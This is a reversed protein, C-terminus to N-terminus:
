KKFHNMEITREALFYEEEIRNSAVIVTRNASYTELTNKYWEVAAGDLNTHPEDLLLLPTQSLIALSLKARQKMGSSFNGIRKKKVPGLQSIELVDSESLGTAFPKFKKHFSILEPFTFEEVLDLYPGSFSVQSIIDELPLEQRNILHKITGSSPALSSALIKLLTSKGSGNGGLLAWKSGQPISLTVGRFIIHHLFSKSINELEIEM